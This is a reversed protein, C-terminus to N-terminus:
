KELIKKIEKKTVVSGDILRIEDDSIYEKVKIILGKNLLVKKM